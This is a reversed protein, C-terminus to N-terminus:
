MFDNKMHTIDVHKVNEKLIFYEDGSNSKMQIANNSMVVFTGQVSGGDKTTIKLKTKGPVLKHVDAIVDGEKEQRGGYRRPKKDLEIEAPTPFTVNKVANVINTIEGFVFGGGRTELLVFDGKKLKLLDVFKGVQYDVDLKNVEKTKVVQCLFVM